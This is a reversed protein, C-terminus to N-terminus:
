SIQSPHDGWERPCACRGVKGPMLSRQYTTTTTISTITTTIIPPVLKLNCYDSDNCCTVTMEPTQRVFPTCVLPYEMPFFESKHLCRYARTVVGTDKQLSTSTFCFGKTVCTDNTDACIDCHCLLGHVAAGHLYILLTLSLLVSCRYSSMKM